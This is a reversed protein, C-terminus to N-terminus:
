APVPTAAGVARLVFDETQAIARERAPGDEAAGRGSLCANVLPVTVDLDQEPFAGSAVGAVLIQRLLQEVVVVHERVRAQTGRSLV